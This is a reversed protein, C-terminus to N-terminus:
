VAILPRGDESKSDLRLARSFAGVHVPDKLVRCLVCLQPRGSLWRITRGCPKCVADVENM